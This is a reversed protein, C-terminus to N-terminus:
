IIRGVTNRGVQRRAQVSHNVMCWLADTSQSALIRKSPECEIFRQNLVPASTFDRALHWFDLIDRFEASVRSPIGRYEYYRNQYGFVTDGGAADSEAYIERRYVEQQGIRELERQFYDLNTRRSFGRNLGQMYMSVPRVSMLTMVYGHEEFFRLFRRSRVASIGHGKLEGVGFSESTGTDIDPSSQLVESFSITQKGGGLYEPRQLRADSPRIGLYRLYDVYESGYQGRAEEFRQIALARRLETVSVATAASLDALLAPDDWAANTDPGSLASNFAANNASASQGLLPAGSAGSVNFTPVGAGDAVIPASTGLPITVEPGKQQWPRATNFDDKSWSVLQVTDSDQAVPTILDQDRYFKNYILNYSRHALASIELNAVSPPVGFYDALGGATFGSGGANIVPYTYGDGEGDEGGTIFQEFEDWVLRHPVFWHHFRVIVPHMVPALLPSVRILASTRQRISDGPLVEYLGVPVLRGMDTTLLNYHSLSHKTRKM